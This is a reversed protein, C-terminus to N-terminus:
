RGAYLMQHVFLHPSTNPPSSSYVLSNQERWNQGAFLHQLNIQVYFYFFNLLFGCIHFWINTNIRQCKFTAPSSSCRQWGTWFGRVREGRCELRAQSNFNFVLLQLPPSQFAFMVCLHLKCITIASCHLATSAAWGTSDLESIASEQSRGRRWQMGNRWGLTVFAFFYKFRTTVKKSTFLFHWLKEWQAQFHIMRYLKNDTILQTDASLSGM